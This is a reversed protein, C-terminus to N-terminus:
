LCSIGYVSNLNTLKKQLSISVIGLVLFSSHLVLYQQWSLQQIIGGCSCTLPKGSILITINSIPFLVILFTFAYYGALRTNKFLLLAAIILVEFPIMWSLWNAYGGTYYDMKLQQLFTQQAILISVGTYVFVMILLATIIEAVVNTKHHFASQM